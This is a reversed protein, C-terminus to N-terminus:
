PRVRHIRRSGRCIAVAFVVGGIGAGAIWPWRPPPDTDWVEVGEGVAPCVMRRGDPSFMLPWPVPSSMERQTGGTKSDVIRVMYHGDTDQRVIGVKRLLPDIWSAYWFGLTGALLPAEPDFEARWGPGQFKDVRDTDGEKTESVPDQLLDFIFCWELGFGRPADDLSAVMELRRGDWRRIYTWPRRPLNLWRLAKGSPLDVLLIAARWDKSPRRTWASVSATPTSTGHSHLLVAASSGDPAFSVDDAWIRGRGGVTAVVDGIEAWVIAIGHV